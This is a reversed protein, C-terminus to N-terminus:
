NDHCEHPLQQQSVCVRDRRFAAHETPLFRGRGSVQQILDCGFVLLFALGNYPIFRKDVRQLKLLIPACCEHWLRPWQCGVGWM